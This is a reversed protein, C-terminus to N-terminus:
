EFNFRRVCFLHASKEAIDKSFLIQTIDSLIQWIFSIFLFWVRNDFKDIWAWIKNMSKLGGFGKVNFQLQEFEDKNWVSLHRLYLNEEINLGIKHGNPTTLIIKKTTINSLDEIFKYGEEKKLHEIVELAVSLGFVANRFPLDRVDALLLEDYFGLQKVIKITPKFVDIGVKYFLKDTHILPSDRGCGVDLVSSNTNELESKVLPLYTSDIGFNRMFHRYLKRM